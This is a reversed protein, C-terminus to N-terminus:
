SEREAKVIQSFKNKKQAFHQWAINHPYVGKLTSLKKRKLGTKQHKFLAWGYFAWHAKLLVKKNNTPTAFILLASNRVFFKKFNNIPQRISPAKRCM